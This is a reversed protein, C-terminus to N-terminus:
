TEFNRRGKVELCPNAAGTILGTWGNHRSHGLIHDAHDGGSLAATTLPLALATALSVIGRM